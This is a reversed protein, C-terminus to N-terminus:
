AKAAAEGYVRKTWAFLVMAVAILALGIVILTAGVGMTLYSVGFSNTALYLSNELNLAQAYSLQQPNTPDYREGGLLAGYTPAIDHRHSRVIDGAVQTENMTDVVEGKALQSDNIGLTIQEVDLAEKLFQHKDVALGIFVAGAVMSVVGLILVGLAVPRSLKKM